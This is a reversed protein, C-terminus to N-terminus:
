AASSVTQEWFSAYRKNIVACRYTLVAEAGTLSWFMGSQKLRQAVIKKCGAEVVGSGYFLGEDRYQKYKMRPLNNKFYTVQATVEDKDRAKEHHRKAASVIKNIEGEWLWDKWRSLPSSTAHEGFLALHLEHLHESAHYYDLIQIAEPFNVRAIEWIWHAGDGLFAQKTAKALGRRRAEALLDGGFVNSSKFNAVYSTSGEDRIPRGKKDTCHQTFVCGLKVERTRASGDPQKGRRGELADKRMPAGTGDTSIYFVPVPKEPPTLELEQLKKALKPGTTCVERQISRSCVDLGALERLDEAAQEYSGKSAAYGMMRRLGPSHRKGIIGLEEDFPIRSCEPTHYYDRNFRIVGLVTHLERSRQHCKEQFRRQEPAIERPSVASLMEGLLRCGCAMLAQLM